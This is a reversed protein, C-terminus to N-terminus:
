RSFTLAPQAILEAKRVRGIIVTRHAAGRHVPDCPIEAIKEWAFPLVGPTPSGLRGDTGSRQVDSDSWLRDFCFYTVDVPLDATTLPWDVRRIPTAYSYAFRHYIRGLSVLRQPDPLQRKVAAIPGTLDNAGEIRANLAPGAYALGMFAALAFVAIQPRPTREGCSAWALAATATLAVVAWAAVFIAPQRIAALPEIPLMRAAVLVVCGALATLGMCRLYFRWLLRDFRSACEATYQEVVLAMLVALAPYLPMYYRGRAGAALWVTPYTVAVAVVLFQSQPRNAMLSKWVRPRALSLLLPSWPLLCGLTELPYSALHRLLGDSAFRDRALGSWIDALADWEVRAFPVVWGGVIWVFCALGALHARGFLWRWDRRLVLYVTTVAVFYIPAQPGKTLAGLAALSYGWSWALTAPWGRVYGLHWTLLSGATFLTFLAESEGFRGLAMVQGSTAFIAAATFSALRSMWASAYAYILWTMVLIACASPLRVAVLDVDQRALAVLAMAWSGFPPREPFVEGQQRPVIWDGTAIMERAANAWRSEEGCIPAAALRSFYIALVMVGLAAVQWQWWWPRSQALPSDTPVLREHTM